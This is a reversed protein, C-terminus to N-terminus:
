FGEKMAVLLEPEIPQIRFLLDSIKKEEGSLLKEKILSQNLRDPLTSEFVIVAIRTKGRIDNIAYGYYSRSKMNFRRAYKKDIHYKDKFKNLYNELDNAPDPLNNVFAEGNKWAEAIIGEDSPYIVRGKKCFEPNQSYRGIMVFNTGDNNYVSIRETNTFKLISNALDALVDQVFDFTIKTMTDYKDVKAKLKTVLDLNRWILINAIVIFAVSGYFWNVSLDIGLKDKPLTVLVGLIGFVISALSNFAHAGYDEIWLAARQLWSLKSSYDNKKL